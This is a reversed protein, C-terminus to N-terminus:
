SRVFLQEKVGGSWQDVDSEKTLKYGLSEYLRRASHLGDFTSLYSQPFNCSDCHNVVKTMLEKGIGKGTYNQDVIFWRVHAGSDHVHKSDLSVSGVCKGGDVYATLFLDTELNFRSLFESLESAVKTEFALGFGWNASYYDMHM